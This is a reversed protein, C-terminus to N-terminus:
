HNTDTARLEEPALVLCAREALAPMSYALNSCSFM